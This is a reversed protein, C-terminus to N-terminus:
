LETLDILDITMAIHIEWSHPRYFKFDVVEVAVREVIRFGGQKRSAQFNMKEM